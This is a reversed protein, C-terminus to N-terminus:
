RGSGGFPIQSQAGSEGRGVLEIELDAARYRVLGLPGAGAATWIEAGGKRWHVARVTESGASVPEEGLRTWGEPFTPRRATGGAARLLVQRRVSSDPAMVYAETGTREAIAGFSVLVKRVMGRGSMMGGFEDATEVWFADGRRGVVSITRFQMLPMPAGVNESVSYRAWQGTTWGTVGYASPAVELWATGAGGGAGSRRVVVQADLLAPGLVATALLWGLRMTRTM